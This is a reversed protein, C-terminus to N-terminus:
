LILSSTTLLTMCARRSLGSTAAQYLDNTSDSVRWLDMIAAEILFIIAITKLVERAKEKAIVFGALVGFGALFLGYLTIFTSIVISPDAVRGPPAPNTWLFKWALALGAVAISVGLAWLSGKRIATGGPIWRHGGSDEDAM